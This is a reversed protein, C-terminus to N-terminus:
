RRKAIVLVATSLFPSHTTDGRFITARLTRKLWSWKVVDMPATIYLAEVIDFGASELKGCIEKRSYIRARAWRDHIPTPLWSFFPVRNWPLLPLNAGHTEFIWWRNPVSMALLGGPRIVRALESLTRREHEVHELVEFSVTCDVSCDRIPFHDGDYALPLIVGQQGRALAGAKLERLSSLGIDLGIISPFEGAFLYTQAGSGCGFDLLVGERRTIRESVLRHRRVVILDDEGAPKGAALNVPTTDVNM